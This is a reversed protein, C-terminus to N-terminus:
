AVTYSDKMLIKKKAARASGDSAFNVEEEVVDLQESEAYDSSKQHDVATETHENNQSSPAVSSDKSM